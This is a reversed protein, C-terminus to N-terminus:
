MFDFLMPKSSDEGDEEKKEKEGNAPKKNQTIADIHHKTNNNNLKILKWHLRWLRGPQIFLCNLTLNLQTEVAPNAHTM